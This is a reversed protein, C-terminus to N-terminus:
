QHFDITFTPKVHTQLYIVPRSRVSCVVRSGSRYLSFFGTELSLSRSVVCVLVGPDCASFAGLWHYILRPNRSRSMICRTHIISRDKVAALMIFFYYYHFTINKKTTKKGISAWFMSRPYGSSIHRIWRAGM